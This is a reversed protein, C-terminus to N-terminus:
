AAPMRKKKKRTREEWVRVCSQSGPSVNAHCIALSAAQIPGWTQTYRAPSSSVNNQCEGVRGEWEWHRTHSPPRTSEM